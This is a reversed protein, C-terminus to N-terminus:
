AAVRIPYQRFAHRPIVVEEVPRLPKERVCQLLAPFAQEMATIANLDSGKQGAAPCIDGSRVPPRLIHDNSVRIAGTLKYETQPEYAEVAMRESLWKLYDYYSSWGHEAQARAYKEGFEAWEKDIESKAHRRIQALVKRAEPSITTGTLGPMYLGQRESLGALSLSARLTTDNASGQDAMADVLASYDDQSPHAPDAEATRLHRVAHVSLMGEVVGDVVSQELSGYRAGTARLTHHRFVDYYRPDYGPHDPNYLRQQIDERLQPDQWLYHMMLVTARLSDVTNQEGYHGIPARVHTGIANTIGTMAILSEDYTETLYDFGRFKENFPNGYDRCMSFAARCLTEYGRDIQRRYAAQNMEWSEPDIEGGSKRWLYLGQMILQRETETDAHIGPLERAHEVHSSYWEDGLDTFAHRLVEGSKDSPDPTPLSPLGGDKGMTPLIHATPNSIKDIPISYAHERMGEPDAGVADVLREVAPPVVETLLKGILPYVERRGEAVQPPLDLVQAHACTETM